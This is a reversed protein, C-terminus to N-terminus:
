QAPSYTQASVVKLVLVSLFPKQSVASSGLMQSSGSSTRCIRQSLSMARCTSASTSSLGQIVIWTCRVFMTPRSTTGCSHPLSDLFTRLRQLVDALHGLPNSNTGSDSQGDSNISAGSLRFLKDGIQIQFLRHTPLMRQVAPGLPEQQSGGSRQRDEAGVEDEILSSSPAVNASQGEEEEEATAPRQAQKYSLHGDETARRKVGASIGSSSPWRPVAFEASNSENM